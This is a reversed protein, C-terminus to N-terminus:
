LGRRLQGLLGLSLRNMKHDGGLTVVNRPDDSHRVFRPDAFRVKTGMLCARACAAAVDARSRDDLGGVSVARHLLETFKRGREISDLALM